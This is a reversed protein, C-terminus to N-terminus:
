EVPKLRLQYIDCADFCGSHVKQLEFQTQIEQWRTSFAPSNSFYATTIYVPRGNKLQIEYQDSLDDFTLAYVKEPENMFEQSDALPLKTFKQPFYAEFLPGPLASIIVSDSPLNAQDLAQLAQYQWANSNGLINQSLISKWSGLQSLALTSAVLVFLAAPSLKNSTNETYHELAIAALFCIGPLTSIMYRADFTYFFLLLGLQAVGSLGVALSVSDNKKHYWGIAAM